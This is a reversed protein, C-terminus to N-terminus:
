INTTIRQYINLYMITANDFNANALSRNNRIIEQDRNKGEVIYYIINDDIIDEYETMVGAFLIIIKEEKDKDLYIPVIGRIRGISKDIKTKVLLDEIDEQSYEFGIKLTKNM